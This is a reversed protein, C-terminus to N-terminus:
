RRHAALLKRFAPEGERVALLRLGNEPSRGETSWVVEASAVISEGAGDRFSLELRAGVPQAPCNRLRLGGESADVIAGRLTWRSTECWASVRLAVRPHQRSDRMTATASAERTGM